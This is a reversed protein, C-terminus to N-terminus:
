RSSQATATQLRQALLKLLSLGIDPDSQVLTLFQARNVAMLECETEASVRASRTASDILAMEGFASGAGVRQVVREQSMIAARGQLMFYMFMGPDGENIITQNASFKLPTPHDLKAAIKNLTPVDFIRREEGTLSEATTKKIALRALTLRFRSVMVNMLVLVFEPTRQIAKKFQGGDLTIVRCATKATATASRRANTLSMMEGFIEGSNVTDIAKGEITLAVSGEQLFYMRDDGRLFGRQEQERFFVKGALATEATGWQGFFVRAQQPDYAVAAAPKPAGAAPTPPQTFDLSELDM